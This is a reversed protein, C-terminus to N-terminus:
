SAGIPPRLVAANIRYARGGDIVLVGRLERVPKLLQDSKHLAVEVGTPLATSNQPKANEVQNFDLPFFSAQRITTGTNLRIRFTDGQDEATVRWGAPLPKPLSREAAQFLPTSRPDARPTTRQVPLSLSVAGTATLCIDSCVLWRVDAALTVSPGVLGSPVRVPAILLVRGQYGYDTLPGNPLREPAPWELNDARFSQPLKWAVTPPEGSDGPNIWYIHWHPDLDFLLGLHLTTGPEVSTTESVLTLRTHNAVDAAAAFPSAALTACVCLLGLAIPALRGSRTARERM